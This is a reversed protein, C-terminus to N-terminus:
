RAGTTRWLSASPTVQPCHLPADTPSPPPIRQSGSGGPACPRHAGLGLIIDRVDATLIDMTYCDVDQPADSPGYGRM